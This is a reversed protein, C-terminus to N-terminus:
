LGSSDLSTDPEPPKEIPIDFSLKKIEKARHEPHLHAYRSVMSDTKHGSLLQTTKIDIGSMIAHSVFTHRLDHLHFYTLGAAEIIKKWDKKVDYLRDKSRERYFIYPIGDQKVAEREKLVKLAEETLPADHRDGHKDEPIHIYGPPNILDVMAWTLLFVRGRRIGTNTSFRIVQHMYPIKEAAKLLDQYQQKTLAGDRGPPEKKKKLSHIELVKAQSIIKYEEEAAVSFIHNILARHRNHTAPQVTELKRKLYASVQKATINKLLFNGFEPILQNNCMNSKNKIDAQDKCYPLYDDEVFAKFTKENDRRLEPHREEYVMAKRKTLEEFAKTKDTHGTSEFVMKTKGPHDPDPAAYRMYWIDGTYVTGDKKKFTRQCLGRSQVTKRRGRKKPQETSM